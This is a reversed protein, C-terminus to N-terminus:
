DLSDLTLNIDATLCGHNLHLSHPLLSVEYVLDVPLDLIKKLAGKKGRIRRPGQDQRQRKSVPQDPFSSRSLTLLLVEELLQAMRVRMRDVKHQM